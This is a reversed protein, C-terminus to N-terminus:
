RTRRALRKVQPLFAASRGRQQQARYEIIYRGSSPIGAYDSRIQHERM